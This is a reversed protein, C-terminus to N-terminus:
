EKRKYIFLSSEKDTMSFTSDNVFSFVFEQTTSDSTIKIKDGEFLYSASDVLTSGFNTIVTGNNFSFVLEASDSQNNGFMGIALALFSSNLSSENVPAISDLKWKGEINAPDANKKPLFM